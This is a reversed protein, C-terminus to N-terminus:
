EHAETLQLILRLAYHLDISFFHNPDSWGTIQIL